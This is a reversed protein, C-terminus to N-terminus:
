LHDIIDDVERRYFLYGLSAMLLSSGAVLGLQGAGPVAGYFFIARYSQILGAAPNLAYVLHYGGLLEQPQYFIPTLYFLLMLGLSVIYHVDRYFVNFTGVLLGIGVMLLGQALALVPFLLLAPTLTRGYWVLIGLLIPLALLYTVFNSLANVVLLIAPSFHPRRVLDRNNIFVDASATVCTSFWTWPLLASFVFAPYAEIRLPVVSQFVFVLVLLQALPLLLSWLMGLASRRYSLSFDRRVLNRILDAHYRM